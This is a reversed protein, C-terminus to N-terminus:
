ADHNMKVGALNECVPRERVHPVIRRIDGIEFAHAMSKGSSHALHGAGLTVTLMMQSAHFIIASRHSVDDRARLTQEIRGHQDHDTKAAALTRLKM